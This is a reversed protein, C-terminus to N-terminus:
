GLGGPLGGPCLRLSPSGHRRKRSLLTRGGLRRLPPGGRGRERGGPASRPARADLRRPVTDHPAPGNAHEAHTRKADPAPRTSHQRPHNTSTKHLVAPEKNDSGGSNATAPTETPKTGTTRKPHQRTEQRSAFSGDKPSLLWPCHISIHVDSIYPM